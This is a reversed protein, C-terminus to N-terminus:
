DAAVDKTNAIYEKCVDKNQREKPQGEVSTAFGTPFSVVSHLIVGVRCKVIALSLAYCAESM